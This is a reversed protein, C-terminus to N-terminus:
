IRKKMTFVLRFGFGSNRICLLWVLHQGNEGAKDFRRKYIRMKWTDQMFRYEQYGGEDMSAKIGYEWFLIQDNRFIYSLTHLNHFTMFTILIAKNEYCFGTPMGIWWSDRGPERPYLFLVSQGVQVGVSKTVAHCAGQDECPDIWDRYRASKSVILYTCCCIDISVYHTFSILAIGLDQILKESCVLWAAIFFAPRM